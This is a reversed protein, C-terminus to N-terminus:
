AAVPVSVVILVHKECMAVIDSEVSFHSHGVLFDFRPLEGDGRLLFLSLFFSEFTGVAQLIHRFFGSRNVRSPHFVLIHGDGTEDVGGLEVIELADILGVFRWGVIIGLRKRSDPRKGGIGNVVLRAM